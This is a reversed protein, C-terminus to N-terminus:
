VRFFESLFKKDDEIHEIIDNSVVADFVEDWFCACIVDDLVFKINKYSKKIQNFNDLGILFCNNKYSLHTFDDKGLSINILSNNEKLNKSFEKIKNKILDGVIIYM